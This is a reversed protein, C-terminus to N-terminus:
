NNIQADDMEKDIIQQEIMYIYIIQTDTTQRDDYIMLRYDVIQSRNDTMKRDDVTQRDEDIVQRYSDLVSEKTM